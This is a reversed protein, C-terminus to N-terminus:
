TLSKVDRHWLEWETFHAYYKGAQCPEKLCLEDIYKLPERVIFILTMSLRDNHLFLDAIQQFLAKASNM